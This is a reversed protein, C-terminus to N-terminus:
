KRNRGLKDRLARVRELDRISITVKYQIGRPTKFPERRMPIKLKKLYRMLQQTDSYGLRKAAEDKDIRHDM